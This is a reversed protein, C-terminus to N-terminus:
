GLELGGARLTPREVAADIVAAAGAVVTVRQSARTVATYLLERTLVPSPRAPLAVVVAAFTEGGRVGGLEFEVRWGDEGRAVGLVRHGLRVAAGLPRALALPLEELGDPFSFIRAKPRGRVNRQAWAGRILSGHAQELAHLKPFAQRASLLTPDGAYVGGVMPNVAYDLFERGLRRVAASVSSCHAASRALCM